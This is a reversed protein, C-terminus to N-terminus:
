ACTLQLGVAQRMGDSVDVEYGGEAYAARTPLYGVDGDAYGIM